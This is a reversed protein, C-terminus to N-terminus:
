NLVVSFAGKAAWILGDEAEAHGGWRRGSASDEILPPWGAPAHRKRRGARSGTSACGGTRRRRPTSSSGRRGPQRFTKEDAPDLTRVANQVRLHGVQRRSAARVRPLGAAANLGLKTLEAVPCHQHRELQQDGKTTSASAIASTTSGSGCATSGASASPRISRSPGPSRPKGSTRRPLVGGLLETASAHNSQAV